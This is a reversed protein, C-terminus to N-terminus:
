NYHLMSNELNEKIVVIIYTVGNYIVESNLTIVLRESWYELIFWVDKSYLLDLKIMFEDISPM